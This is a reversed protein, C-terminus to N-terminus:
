WCRDGSRRGVRAHGVVDRAGSELWAACMRPALDSALADPTWGITISEDVLVCAAGAAVDVGVPIYQHKDSFIRAKRLAVPLDLLPSYKTLRRNSRIFCDASIRMHEQGFNHLHFQSASLGYNLSSVDSKILSRLEM